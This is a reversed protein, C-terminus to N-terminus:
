RGANTELIIAANEKGFHYSHLFHKWSRRGFPNQWSFPKKEILETWTKLFDLESEPLKEWFLHVLRKATKGTGIEEHRYSPPIDQILDLVNQWALKLPPVNVIGTLARELKKIKSSLQWNKIHNFRNQLDRHDNQALSPANMKTDIVNWVERSFSLLKKGERLMLKAFEDLPVRRKEPEIEFWTFYLERWRSRYFTIPGEDEHAPVEYVMDGCLLRTIADLWQVMTGIANSQYYPVFPGGRVFQDYDGNWPIGNLSVAFVGQM